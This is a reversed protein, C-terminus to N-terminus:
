NIIKIDDPGFERIFKKMSESVEPDSMIQQIKRRNLEQDLEPVPIDYLAGLIFRCAERMDKPNSRYMDDALSLLEQLLSEHGMKGLARVIGKFPLIVTLLRGDAPESYLDFFEDPESHIIEDCRKCLMDRLFKRCEDEPVDRGLASMTQIYNEVGVVSPTVEYPFGPENGLCACLDSMEIKATLLEEVQTMLYKKPLRRMVIRALDLDRRSEWEQQLQAEYGPFWERSLQHCAWLRDSKAGGFMASLIKRQDSYSQALFRRQLERRAYSVKGSKRDTFLKLLKSVPENRHDEQGAMSGHPHELMWRIKALSTGMMRSLTWDAEIEAILKALEAEPVARVIANQISVMDRSEQDMGRGAKHIEVLEWATM